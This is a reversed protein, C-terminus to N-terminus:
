IMFCLAHTLRGIIHHAILIVAFIQISHKCTIRFLYIFSYQSRVPCQMQSPIIPHQSAAIIFLSTKASNLSSSACGIVASDILACEVCLLDFRIFVPDM